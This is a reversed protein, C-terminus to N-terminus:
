QIKLLKSMFLVRRTSFSVPNEQATAIATVMLLAVVLSAISYNKM